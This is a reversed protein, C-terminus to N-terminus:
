SIEFQSVCEAPIRGLSEVRRIYSDVPYADHEVPSGPPWFTVDLIRGPPLKWRTGDSLCVLDDEICEYLAIRKM